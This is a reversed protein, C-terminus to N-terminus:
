SQASVIIRQNEIRIEMGEVPKKFFLKFSSLLNGM